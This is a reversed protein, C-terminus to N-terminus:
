PLTSLRVVNQVGDFDSDFSFIETIDRDRMAAVSTADAFSLQPYRKFIHYGANFLDDDIFIMEVHESDLLAETVEISQRSGMKRRLYTVVEGFIHDTLLVTALEGDTVAEM